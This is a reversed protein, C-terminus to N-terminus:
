TGTGGIRITGTDSSIVTVPSTLGSEEGMLYNLLFQDLKRYLLEVKINLTQADSTPAQFSFATEGTLERAVAGVSAPCPFSFEAVDAFGPFLTRRYRVGVMEWLNHRDILNGYQDVAEAKFIFSGPEIFHREDRAGSTYVVNGETDEVTLHIWAQIIDLPGTPFDHGVKNNTIKVKIDVPEGPSVIDPLILEIPVAPGAEWKHSIEPIDIEGKLWQEVLAVQEEGGPLEHAVPMFQNAGLFRHSRHKGDDESRNYDLDDGSAPDRSNAVLPMHCERCEITKDPDGPHNWRSKRWNDFQNQLQVWGVNNIEQDIFQKHCAACFEPSKFLRHSLTEIHFDPYARILFDSLFKATSGEKMEYAYREPQDITYDANGKIDTTKIAHCALCSVGEQYGAQSTLDGVFLHKTGSFLSIPDHCGGCYRTSEHGNQTAMVEQVKQFALDLASYRHASPEWEALIEEHCGSSGCRRSGALSKSDYAGGSATRALSPRFPEESGHTFSYEEPFENNFRVPEYAYIWLATVAFGLVTVGLTGWGFYSKAASLQAAGGSDKIKSDRFVLTIIHPLAFAILAFTTVIHITDWVYGIRTSLAAQLTLIIGSIGCLATAILSLYGTLKVHTMVRRRYAGWHKVQYWAYPIVFILGAVTHFLVLFQNSLSFPLLYIALGSLTEFVLLGTVIFALKTRWGQLQSNTYDNTESKM